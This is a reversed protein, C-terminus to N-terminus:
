GDVQFYFASQKNIIGLEHAFNHRVLTGRPQNGASGDWGFGPFATYNGDGTTDGVSVIGSEGLWAFENEAVVTGRQYGGLFIGANDLRWFTSGSVEFGVTGNAVVAAFRNVAWDGGTPAMHPLFTAAATDRFGLGDLRIGVAPRAHTGTVSVLTPFEPLLM